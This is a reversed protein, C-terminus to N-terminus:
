RNYTVRATCTEEIRVGALFIVQGSVKGSGEPPIRDFIRDFIWRAVNESTPNPFLDNLHHHDLQAVIPELIAKVDGYDLVMGQKPGDPELCNGQIFVTGLWSHGHLRACQGDHYPLQHSAEFRFNKELVWRAM